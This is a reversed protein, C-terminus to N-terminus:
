VKAAALTEPEYSLSKLTSQLLLRDRTYLLLKYVAVISNVSRSSFGRAHSGGFFPIMGLLSLSLSLSLSVGLPKRVSASKSDHDL